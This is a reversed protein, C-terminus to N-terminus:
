FTEVVPMSNRIGPPAQAPLTFGLQDLLLQHVKEPKTHRKMRLERGDSEPHIMRIHHGDATKAGM